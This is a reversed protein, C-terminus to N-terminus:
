GTNDGANMSANMRGNTMKRTGARPDARIESLCNDHLKSCTEEFGLSLALQTLLTRDEERNKVVRM